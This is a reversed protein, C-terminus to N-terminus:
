FFSMLDSAQLASRQAEKLDRVIKGQHMVLTRTGFKLAQSM